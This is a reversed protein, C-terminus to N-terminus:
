NNIIETLEDVVPLVLQETIYDKDISIIALNDEINSIVIGEGSMYDIINVEPEESGPISVNFIINNGDAIFTVNEGEVL